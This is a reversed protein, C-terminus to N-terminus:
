RFETDRMKLRKDIVIDILLEEDKTNFKAKGEVVPAEATNYPANEEGPLVTNMPTVTLLRQLADTPDVAGKPKFDPLKIRLSQKQRSDSLLEISPQIIITVESLLQPGLPNFAIASVLFVAPCLENRYQTYEEMTCVDPLMAQAHLQKAFALLLFIARAAARRLM